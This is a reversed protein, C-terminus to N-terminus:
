LTCISTDDNVMSAVKGATLNSKDIIMNEFEAPTRASKLTDTLTDSIIEKRVALDVIANRRTINLSGDTNTVCTAISTASKRVNTAFEQGTSLATEAKQGYIKQIREQRALNNAAVGTAIFQTIRVGTDPMTKVTQGLEITALTSAYHDDGTQDTKRFPIVSAEKRKFGLVISDPLGTTADFGAKLGYSNSTGFLMLRREGKYSVTGQETKAEAITPPVERTVWDAAIGTAYLQKVTADFIGLDSAIFGFIPPAQGTEVYAPGIYGETRDYGINATRTTLDANVGINTSTVFVAHDADACAALVSLCLLAAARPLNM